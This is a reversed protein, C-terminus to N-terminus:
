PFIIDQITWFIDTFMFFFSLAIKVDRIRSESKKSSKAKSSKKLKKQAKSSEMTSQRRAERASERRWGELKQVFIAQTKLFEEIKSNKQAQTKSFGHLFFGQTIKIMKALPVYELEKFSNDNFIWFFIRRLHIKLKPNM